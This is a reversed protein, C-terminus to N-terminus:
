QKISKRKEIYKRYIHKNIPKTTPENEKNNLSTVTIKSKSIKSTSPQVVAPTTTSMPPTESSQFELSNSTLPQVVAPTTTSMPPTESSQVKLSNSTSPATQTTTEKLSITSNSSSPTESKKATLRYNKSTKNLASFGDAFIAYCHKRNKCGCKWWV